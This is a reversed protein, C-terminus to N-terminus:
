HLLHYVHAKQYIVGFEEEISNKMYKGQLKGGDPKVASKIIFPKLRRLQSGTLGKPHGNHKGENLGELGDNLYANIWKNVSTRSVKLFRAIETPSKGDVFHSVALLRTRM